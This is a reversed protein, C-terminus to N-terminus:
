AAGAQQKRQWDIGNAIGVEMSTATRNLTGCKACSVNVPVSGGINIVFKTHGCHCRMTAPQIPQYHHKHREHSEHCRPNLTHTAFHGTM